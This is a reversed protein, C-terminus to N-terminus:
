SEPTLLRKYSGTTKTDEVEKVISEVSQGIINKHRKILNKLKTMEYNIIAVYESLYDETIVDIRYYVERGSVHLNKLFQIHKSKKTILGRKGIYAELLDGGLVILPYLFELLIPETEGAKPPHWNEYFKNIEEEIAYILSNFTDHQEELHTAIWKDKDRRRDFSCYQAASNGKCYHHFKYLPLFSVLDVYEDDKWIKMPVGCCQISASNFRPMLPKFPFFVVPQMNNECECFISWHVGGSSFEESWGIGLTSDARIDIERSKGSVPDLYTYSAQVFYDKSLVVQVRQEILYGSNYIAQKIESRAIKNRKIM